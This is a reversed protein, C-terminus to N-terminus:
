ARQNAIFCRKDADLWRGYERKPVLVGVQGGGFVEALGSLQGAVGKKNILEQHALHLPAADGFVLKRPILNLHDEVAVALLLRNGGGSGGLVHEAEGLPVRNGLDARAAAAHGARKAVLLLVVVQRHGDALQHEEGGYSLGVALRHNGGGAGAAAM